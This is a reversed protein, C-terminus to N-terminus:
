SKGKASAGVPSLLLMKMGKETKQIVINKLWHLDDREPYDTRFHAGRSEERYLAAKAIIRGVRLMNIAELGEVLEFNARLCDTAIKLSSETEEEDLYQIAKELLPRSRIVGVHKWMEQRVANKVELPKGRGKRLSVLSELRNRTNNVYESLTSRDFKVKTSRSSRAGAVGAIRGLVLTDSLSNDALRNAGHAGAAAEGAAFLHSISTKCSEDIRIGGMLYHAAPAVEGRETKIDLGAELCTQVEVPFQAYYRESLGTRDIYVGGNETGRGESIEMYIAQSLRDRTTNELHDPDYREMFREGNTNYLKAQSYSGVNKGELAKPYVYNVPYFQIMEMDMLEAGAEYALWIGDGTIQPPNTTRAYLCGAGGTAIVTAGATLAIIEGTSVSFGVAGFAQGEMVLLETAFVGNQLSVGKRNAERRLVDLLVKGTSDGLTIYRYHQHGASTENPEAYLCSEKPDFLMGMQEMKRVVSGVGEVVLRSLQVNNIGCGSELTDALHRETSDDPFSWEGVAALGKAQVSSGSKGVECKDLLIVQASPDANKAAVAAALGALGGGIVLVDGKLVRKM